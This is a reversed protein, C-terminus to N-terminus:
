PRTSAGTRASAPRAGGVNPSGLHRGQQGIENLIRTYRGEQAGSDPLPKVEQGNALLRLRTPDITLPHDSHNGIQVFFAGYPLLPVTRYNFQPYLDAGVLSPEETPSM